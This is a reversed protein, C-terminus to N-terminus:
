ESDIHEQSKKSITFESLLWKWALQDVNGDQVDESNNNNRTSPKFLTNPLDDNFFVKFISSLYLKNCTTSGSANALAIKKLTEHETTTLDYERLHCEARLQLISNLIFVQLCLREYMQLNKSKIVKRTNNELMQLSLNLYDSTKEHPCNWFREITEFIIASNPFLSMNSEPRRQQESPKLLFESFQAQSKLLNQTEEESEIDSMYANDEDDDKESLLPLNDDNNQGMTADISSRNTHNHSEDNTSMSNINPTIETDITQNNNLNPITSSSSNSNLQQEIEEAESCDSEDRWTIEDFDLYYIARFYAPDFITENMEYGFPAFLDRVGEMDCSLAAKAFIFFDILSLSFYKTNPKIKLKTGFKAIMNKLRKAQSPVM